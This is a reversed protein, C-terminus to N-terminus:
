FSPFELTYLHYKGRSPRKFSAEARTVLKQTPKHVIEYFGFSPFSFAPCWPHSMNGEFILYQVQYDTPAARLIKAYEVPVKLYKLSWDGSVWVDFFQQKDASYSGLTKIDMSITHIKQVDHMARITDRYPEIVRRQLNRLHKNFKSKTFYEFKSQMEKRMTAVRARRAETTEFEDGGTLSKLEVTLMTKDRNSSERIRVSPKYSSFRLTLQEEIEKKLRKKEEEWDKEKLMVVLEVNDGGNQRYIRHVYVEFHEKLSQNNISQPSIEGDLLSFASGSSLHVLADNKSYNEKGAPSWRSGQFYRVHNITYFPLSADVRLKCVALEPNQGFLSLASSLFCCLAILRM